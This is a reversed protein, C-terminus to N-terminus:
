RGWIRLFNLMFYELAPTDAMNLETFGASKELIEVARAIKVAPVGEGGLACSVCADEIDGFLRKRLTRREGAVIADIVEDDLEETDSEAIDASEDTLRTLVRNFRTLLGYCRMVADVLKINKGIGGMLAKQWDKFDAIWELWEEDDLPETESEVRLSICRSRITDLLDNPRTTMMFITTGKPPEELTKLFANASHVNMRDVEYLLAVKNGGLNSTRSIDHLLRRMSNPPWDTGVKESESGIKIMRMKGQPRLEFCDPHKRPNSGLLRTAVDLAVQELASISSGYLLIAHHLRGANLAGLLIDTAKPNNSM